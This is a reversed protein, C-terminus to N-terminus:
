KPEVPVPVFCRACHKKGGCSQCTVHGDKGCRTCDIEKKGKGSCTSCSSTRTVWRRGIKRRKSNRGDGGCNSCRQEVKRKGHCESCKQEGSGNCSRCQRTDRCSKCSPETAPPAPHPLTDAAAVTFALLLVSCQSALIRKMAFNM